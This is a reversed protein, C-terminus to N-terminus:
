WLGLNVREITLEQDALNAFRLRNIGPVLSQDALGFVRCRDPQTREDEKRHPLVVEPFLYFRRAGIVSAEYRVVEAPQDNVSLAAGGPVREM